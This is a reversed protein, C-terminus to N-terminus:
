NNTKHKKYNDTEQLKKKDKKQAINESDRIELINYKILPINKRIIIKIIEFIIFFTTIMLSLIAYVIIYVNTKGTTIFASIATIISLIFNIIQIIYKLFKVASKYNKLRYKMKSGANISIFLLILFIIAYAILLYIIIKSLFNKESLKYTVFFTYCSYLAISLINWLLFFVKSKKSIVLATNTDEPTTAINSEKEHKKKFFNM